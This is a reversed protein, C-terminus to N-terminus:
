PRQGQGKAAGAVVGAITAATDDWRPLAGALLWSAVAKQMRLADDSIMTRLAAALAPADEPPVKLAVERPVTGALAGGTTSVIPLGRAIAETIVMGYGEFRSPMVFIDARDYANALAEADLAGRRAIRQAVGSAAIRRDLDITVDSAPDAVGVLELRWDLDGLTSLADVLVDYGKRRSVSGVALLAIPRKTGKARPAPDVGPVAVTIAAEPVAYDRILTEATAPSTVVVAVAHALATRELQVLEQARAPPTGAELALPHHVLAVIPARVADLVAAPLAGLALGDALIVESPAVTALMTLSAALTGADPHPFGAPLPLHRAALGLGGFRALVERDYKYGGTPSALKGPIAFTCAIV